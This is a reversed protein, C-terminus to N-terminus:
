ARMRRESAGSSRELHEKAHTSQDLNRFADGLNFLFLTEM